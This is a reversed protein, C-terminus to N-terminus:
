LQHCRLFGWRSHQLIKESVRCVIIYAKTGSFVSRRTYSGQDGIAGGFAPLGKQKAM